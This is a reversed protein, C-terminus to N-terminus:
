KIYVEPIIETQTAEDKAYNYFILLGSKAAELFEGTLTVEVRGDTSYNVNLQSDWKDKVIFQGNIQTAIFTITCSEGVNAFYNAPIPQGSVFDTIQIGYNIIEEEEEEEPDPTPTVVPTDNPTEIEESEDDNGEWGENPFNPYKEKISQREAPWEFNTSVAIKQPADGKPAELVCVAEASARVEVKIDKLNYSSPTAVRFIAPAVGDQGNVAGTNIMVDEAVGFASHVDVGGISIPLTGGAALVTIITQDGQIYADFVLDNFDFDGVEGLDECIIRKVEKAKYIAPTIKVIWDAYNYDRAVIKDETSGNSEFDYGLFYMGALSADIREGPVIVYNYYIQRDSDELTSQFGFRSTGTNQMYQIKDSHFKRSNPDAPDSLTGNWVDKNITCDGGNFNNMHCNDEGAVLYSMHLKGNDNSSVQQVFFDSWNVSIGEPKDNNKFWETVLNKQAETLTDPVDVYNGWENASTNAWGARTMAVVDGSPEVSFGWDENPDIEGFQEIWQARYQAKKAAYTPDFLDEIDNACGALLMGAFGAGMMTKFLVKKM